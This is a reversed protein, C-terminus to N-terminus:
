VHQLADDVSSTVRWIRLLGALQLTKRVASTSVVVTFWGGERTVRRHAGALVGIGTSDLFTVDTLDVVLHKPWSSAFVQLLADRLDGATSVDIEGFARLVTATEHVEVTCVTKGM